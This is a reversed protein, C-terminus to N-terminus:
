GPPPEATTRVLVHGRGSSLRCWPGTEFVQVPDDPALFGLSYAAFAAGAPVRDLGDIARGWVEGRVREVIQEGTGSPIAGAVEDIGERAVRELLDTSAVDVRAWGGRPPSIGAWAVTGAEPPLTVPVPEVEPRDARGSALHALRELLARVPVVADFQERGALAFTRLGLVTPRRDLLGSPYLVAVYVALVGGAAILRASGDDLRGSRGLFVQLDRLDHADTLFFSTAM